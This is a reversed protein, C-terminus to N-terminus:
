VLVLLQLLPELHQESISLLLEMQIIFPISYNINRKETILHFSLYIKGKLGRRRMPIALEIHVSHKFTSFLQM